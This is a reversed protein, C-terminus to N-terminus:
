DGLLKELTRDSPVQYPTTDALSEAMDPSIIRRHRPFMYHQQIRGICNQIISRDRFSKSCRQALNLLPRLFTSM